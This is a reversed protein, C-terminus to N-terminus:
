FEQTIQDVNWNYRPTTFARKLKNEKVKESVLFVPVSEQPLNQEDTTNSNKCTMGVLSVWGRWIGDWMWGDLIANKFDSWRGSLSPHPLTHFPPPCPCLHHPLLPLLPPAWSLNFVPGFALAAGGNSVQWTSKVLKM